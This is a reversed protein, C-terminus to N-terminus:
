ASKSKRLDQLIVALEPKCSGCNTGARLASGIGEVSALDQEQIAEIITNLGVNFCACVQRGADKVPTAPRGSLITRRM